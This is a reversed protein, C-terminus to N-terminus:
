KYGFASSLLAVEIVLGKEGSDWRFKQDGILVFQDFNAQNSDIEREVRGRSYNGNPPNQNEGWHGLSSFYLKMSMTSQICSPQEAHLLLEWWSWQQYIPGPCLSLAVLQRNRMTKLEIRNSAFPWRLRCYFHCQVSSPPLCWIEPIWNNLM